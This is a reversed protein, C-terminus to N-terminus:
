PRKCYRKSPSGCHRWRIWRAAFPSLRHTNLEHLQLEFLDIAKTLQEQAAERQVDIGIMSYSKVMRQSLMRQRGAKNIASSISTIEAQVPLAFIFFLLLSVLQTLRRNM